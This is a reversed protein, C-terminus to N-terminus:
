QTANDSARLVRHDSGAVSMVCNVLAVFWLQVLLVAITSQEEGLCASETVSSTVPQTEEGQIIIISIEFKIATTREQFLLEM